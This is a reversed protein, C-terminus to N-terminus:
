GNFVIDNNINIDPVTFFSTGDTLQCLGQECLGVVSADTPNLNTSSNQGYVDYRYRGALTLGTTNVQIQTIRQTEAIVTVVQALYVGAESNEEHRLIFLYHTFTTAYYQRAEDLTLFLMQNATNAILTIM